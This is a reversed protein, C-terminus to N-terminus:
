GPWPGDTRRVARPPGLQGNAVAKVLIEMTEPADSRLMSLAIVAGSPAQVAVIPGSPSKLQCFRM